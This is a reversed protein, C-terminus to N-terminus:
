EGVEETLRKLKAFLKESPRKGTKYCAIYEDKSKVLERLLQITDAGDLSQMSGKIDVADATDIRKLSSLRFYGLRKGCDSIFELPYENSESISVVKGRVGRWKHSREVVVVSDGVTLLDSTRGRAEMIGEVVQDVDVGDMCPSPALPDSAPVGCCDMAYEAEDKTPQWGGSPDGYRAGAQFTQWMLEAQSDFYRNENRSFYSQNWGMRQILDAEFAARMQESSSDPIEPDNFETALSDKVVLPEVPQCDSALFWLTWDDDFTLRLRKGDVCQVTAHVWVRDGKKFKSM